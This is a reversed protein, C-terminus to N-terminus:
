DPLPLTVVVQTGEGPPSQIHLSAGIAHARENISFLGVGGQPVAGGRGDDAIHLVLASGRRALRIMAQGAAAHRQINSLAEQAIRYLALQAPEPLRVPEDILDFTVAIQATSAWRLGLDLLAAALGAALRPPCLARVLRSMEADASALSGQVGELQQLGAERSGARLASRAAEIQFQAGLLTARVGDHLEYALRQREQEAAALNASLSASLQASHNVVHQLAQTLQVTMADGSTEAVLARHRVLAAVALDAFQSLLGLDDARLHREGHLRALQIVGIQRGEWQLPFGITLPCDGGDCFAQRAQPDNACDIVLPLTRHLLSDALRAEDLDSTSRSAADRSITTVPVLDGDDQVLALTGSHADFLTCAHALLTPFLVGTGVVTLLSVASQVVAQQRAAHSLTATPM